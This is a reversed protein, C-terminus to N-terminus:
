FTICFTLFDLILPVPVPVPALVPVPAPAPVPIPAPFPVLVKGFYSGSASGFYIMVTGCCKIPCLFIDSYIFSNCTNPQKDGSDFQM